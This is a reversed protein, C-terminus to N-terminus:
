LAYSPRPMGLKPSVERHSWAGITPALQISLRAHVDVLRRKPKGEGIPQIPHHQKEGAFCWGGQLKLTVFGCPM